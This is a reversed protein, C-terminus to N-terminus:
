KLEAVLDARWDAVFAAPTVGLVQKLAGSVATDPDSAAINSVAKYFRVLGPEGARRAILRCALWSEEYVQALRPNAGDFDAATPLVTPVKGTKVEAALEAASEPVSQSSDLNGVYDAFGEIVWTPMPDSTAARTAIHTLEHQVVLRRGAADLRNLTTPNLIIRSGLVVRSSSVSDAVAVAALDHNDGTAGAVSTFEEASDPILVAVYDNWDTGWVRRVVPISREVLAAFTASEAAHAPHALVLTQASRYVAVPGFDWPGHWSVGGTQAADDDGALRWGADRHVATLWLNKSTPEPDVRDIAYELRVQLVVVRGSLREAAPGLVDPATVPASLVYRWTRLPVQALSDFVARQRQAFASAAATSDLSAAWAAPDHDLVARAHTQLMSIVASVEAQSAQADSATRQDHSTPWVRWTVAAVVVLLVLGAAVLKRRHFSFGAPPAAEPERGSADSTLTV